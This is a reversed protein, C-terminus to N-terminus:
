SEEQLSNVRDLLSQKAEEFSRFMWCFSRNCYGVMNRHTYRMWADFKNLNSIECKQIRVMGNSNKYAKIICYVVDGVKFDSM